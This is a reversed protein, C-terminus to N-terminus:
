YYSVKVMFAKMLKYRHRLHTCVRVCAHMCACVCLHIRWSGCTHMAACAISVIKMIQM